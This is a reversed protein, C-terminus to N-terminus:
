GYKVEARESGGPRWLSGDPAEPAEAATFTGGLLLAACLSASSSPAVSISITTPLAGLSKSRIGPEGPDISKTARLDILECRLETSQAPGLLCSATLPV